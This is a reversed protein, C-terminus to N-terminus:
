LPVEDPYDGFVYAGRQAEMANEYAQSFVDKERYAKYFGVGGLRM